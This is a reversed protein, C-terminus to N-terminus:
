KEEYRKKIQAPIGTVLVNDPVDKIVVAGAGVISSKGIKINNAISSGICIWTREGVNVTGGMAANPSIHVGDGLVCDHEIVTSTNIICAKGIKANANIVSNAFVVSGKGIQASESIVASAHIITALKIGKIEYKLSLSLRANNNGIAVIIEDFTKLIYEDSINQEYIINYGEIGQSHLDNTMFSIKQYTDKACDLVVKGQGGTGVILLHGM